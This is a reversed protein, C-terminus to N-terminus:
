SIMTPAPHFTGHGDPWCKRCLERKRASVATGFSSHGSKSGTAGCIATWDMFRADYRNTWNRYSAVAHVPYGVTLDTVGM